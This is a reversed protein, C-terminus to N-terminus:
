RFLGEISRLLKVPTRIAVSKPDQGVANDGVEAHEFDRSTLELKHPPRLLDQQHPGTHAAFLLGNPLVGM